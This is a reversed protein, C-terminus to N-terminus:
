NGTATDKSNQNQFKEVISEIYPVSFFLAMIALTQLTDQLRNAHSLGGFSIFFIVVIAFSVLAKIFLRLSNKYFLSFLFMILIYLFYIMLAFGFGYGICQIFSSNNAMTPNPDRYGPLFYVIIGFLLATIIYTMSRKSWTKKTTPKNIVFM